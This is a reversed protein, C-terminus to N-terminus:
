IWRKWDTSLIKKEEGFFPTGLLLKSKMALM